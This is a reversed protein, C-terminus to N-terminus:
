LTSLGTGKYRKREPHPRVQRSVLMRDERGATGEKSPILAGQHRKGQGEIVDREEKERKKAGTTGKGPSRPKQTEM